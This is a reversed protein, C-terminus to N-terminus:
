EIKRTSKFSKTVERDFLKSESIDVLVCIIEHIKGEINKVPSFCLYVWVIGQNKPYIITEIRFNEILGNKLDQFNKCIQDIDKLSILASLKKSNIEELSYGTILTVSSDIKVIKGEPSITIMGIYPNSFDLAKLKEKSIYLSEEKIKEETIDKCSIIVISKDNEANNLIGSFQFWKWQGNKHKLRINTNYISGKHLILNDKYELVVDLDDIHILILIALNGFLRIEKKTYGLFSSFKELPFSIKNLDTVEQFYFKEGSTNRYSEFLNVGTNFFSDLPYLCELLFLHFRFQLINISYEGREM